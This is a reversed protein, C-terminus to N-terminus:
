ETMWKGQEEIVFVRHGEIFRDGEIKDPIWISRYRPQTLKPTKPMEFGKANSLRLSEKKEHDRHGFYGILAGLGAGVVAGLAAGQPNQETALAGASGGAAAGVGAGLLVSDRLSACGPLLTLGIMVIAANRM